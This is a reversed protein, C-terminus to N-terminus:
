GERTQNQMLRRFMGDVGALEDFTGCQVIRGADLVYIRHADRVTSLRHAAVVRTVSQRRLSEYVVAQTLNDLSSTAEDFLVVRPGGALARAILVRQRQGGSLNRGGDALVTYLGMPLLKWEDGLGAATLAERVAEESMPRGCAVNDYLTGQFVFPVQPVVGLQRRVRTLELGNLDRGDYSVVGASPVELGTLLRLLTSKGTGSPAVL